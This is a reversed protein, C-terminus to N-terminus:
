GKKLEYARKARSQQFICFRRFNLAAIKFGLFMKCRLRGRVPMRDVRYKRRLLSPIAEVGNRVHSLQRFREGSREKLWEAHLKSKRSVTKRYGTKTKFPHCMSFHPCERCDTEAMHITCQGTRESFTQSCPSCGNPCSRVATGDESFVFDALFPDPEKGTLNTNVIEIGKEAALEKADFGSYGGDAVITTKEEQDGMKSIMDKLYQADSYNNPQLDYDEVVSGEPGAAEVFNASYGHWVEGHKTRCTADPDFPSQLMSSNMGGDEETRLRLKGDEEVTQEDLVRKLLEVAQLGSEPCQELLTQADRLIRDIKRETDESRNHYIVVNRNSDDTYDELGAEIRGKENEVAKVANALTVYLLELRSMRKINSSIMMSDMRKLSDDLRMLKAMEKSLTKVANGILDAGTKEEYKRCRERFRGLTRDSMPQEEFDETHLAIRFRLDFLMATFVGDDPLGHLEKLILAGIQVNVPTNPRSDKESYLVAFPEEDIKPFVSEAFFSAWSNKLMAKERGTLLYEGNQFSIQDQRNRVFSM